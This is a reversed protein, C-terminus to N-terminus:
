DKSKNIILEKASQLRQCDKCKACRDRHEIIPKLRNSVVADIEKACEKCTKSEVFM